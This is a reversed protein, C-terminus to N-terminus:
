HKGLDFGERSYLTLELSNTLQEFLVPSRVVQYFNIIEGDIDNLVEVLSPTKAYLLAGSGGFVEVCTHHPPFHEIIKPALRAKNGLYTLPPRTM